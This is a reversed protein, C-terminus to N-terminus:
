GLKISWQIFRAWEEVYGTANTKESMEYHINSATIMPNPREGDNKPKLRKTVKRGKDKLIQSRKKRSKKSM